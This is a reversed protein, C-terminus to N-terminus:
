FCHSDPLGIWIEDRRDHVGIGTERSVGLLPSGEYKAAPAERSISPWRSLRLQRGRHCDSYVFGAIQENRIVAVKANSAHIGRRSVNRGNSAIARALTSRADTTEATVAPRRSFRQEV